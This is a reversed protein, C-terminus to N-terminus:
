RASRGWRAPLVVRNLTMLPSCVGAPCPMEELGVDRSHLRVSPGPQAQGVKWRRSSNPESVAPSFTRTPNSDSARHHCRRRSARSTGPTRRAPGLARIGAGGGKPVQRHGVRVVAPPQAQDAESPLLEAAMDVPNARMTSSAPGQGDLWAGANSSGPEPQVLRLRVDEAAATLSAASPM